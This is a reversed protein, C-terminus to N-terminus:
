STKHAQSGQYQVEVVFAVWCVKLGKQEVLIGKAFSLSIENNTIVGKQYVKIPGCTRLM